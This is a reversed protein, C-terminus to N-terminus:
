ITTKQVNHIQRILAELWFMQVLKLILFIFKLYLTELNTTDGGRTTFRRTTNLIQVM